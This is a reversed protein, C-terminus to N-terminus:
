GRRRWECWQVEVACGIHVCLGEHTTRRTVEASLGVSTRRAVDVERVVRAAGAIALWTSGSRAIRGLHLAPEHARVEHKACLRHKVGGRSPSLRARRQAHTARVLEQVGLVDFKGDRCEVVKRATLAHEDLGVRGRGVRTVDERVGFLHDGLDEVRDGRARVDVHGAAPEPHPVAARVAFGIRGLKVFM